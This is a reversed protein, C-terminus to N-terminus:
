MPVNSKERAQCAQEPNDGDYISYEGRDTLGIYYQWPILGVIWTRFVHNYDDSTVAVLWTKGHVSTISVIWGPRTSPSILRFGGLVRITGNHCARKIARQPINDHVYNVLETRTEIRQM